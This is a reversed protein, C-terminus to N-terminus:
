KKSNYVYEGGPNQAIYPGAEIGSVLTGIIGPTVFTVAILLLAILVQTVGM